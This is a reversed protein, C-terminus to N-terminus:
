KSIESLSLLPIFLLVTLVKPNQHSVFLGLRSSSPAKTQIICGPMSSNKRLAVGLSDNGCCRKVESNSFP